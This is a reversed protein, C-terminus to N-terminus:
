ENGRFVYLIQEPIFPVWIAASQRFLAFATVTGVVGVKTKPSYSSAIVADHFLDFCVFFLIGNCLYNPVLYVILPRLPSGAVSSAYLVALVACMALASVALHREAPEGSSPPTSLPLVAGGGGGGGGSRIVWSPAVAIVIKALKVHSYVMPLGMVGLVMNVAGALRLEGDLTEERGAPSDLSAGSALASHQIGKLKMVVDLPIVALGLALSTLLKDLHRGVSFLTATIGGGAGGDGGDLGIARHDVVPPSKTEFLIVTSFVYAPLAIALAIIGVVAPPSLRYKLIRNAAYFVIGLGFACLVNLARVNDEVSADDAFASSAFAKTLIEWALMLIFTSVAADPIRRTLNSSAKNPLSGLVYLELGIVGTLLGCFFRIEFETEVRALVNCYLIVALIDPAVLAFPLASRTAFLCSGIITSLLYLQVFHSAEVTYHRDSGKGLCLSVLHVSFSAILAYVLM